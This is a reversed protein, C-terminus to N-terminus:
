KLKAFEILDDKIFEWYKGNLCIPDFSEEALEFGTFNQIILDRNHNFPYRKKHLNLMENLNYQNILEHIDWFDKKRGGRQIVDLKMAIIEEITALKIGDVIIPQDFFTDTYFVDLKILDDKKKGVLYSKGFATLPHSFFDVVEFENRLFKEIKIFDVTGYEADSFLDIDVSIRHGM